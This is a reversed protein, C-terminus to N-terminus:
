KKHCKQCSYSIKLKKTSSTSQTKYLQLYLMRVKRYALIKLLLLCRVPVMVQCGFPFLMRIMRLPLVYLSWPGQKKNETRLYVQVMDGPKLVNNNHVHFWLIRNLKEQACLNAHAELIEEFVLQVQLNTAM